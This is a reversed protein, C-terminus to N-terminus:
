RIGARDKEHDAQVQLLTTLCEALNDYKKPGTGYQEQADYFFQCGYEQEVVKFIVFNCDRASWFVIPCITLAPDSPNLQLECGALKYERDEGYRKKLTERIVWLESDDFGAVPM